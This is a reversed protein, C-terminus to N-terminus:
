EKPVDWNEGFEKEMKDMISEVHNFSFPVEWWDLPVYISYDGIDVQMFADCLDTKNHKHIKINPFMALLMKGNTAGEPIPIAKVPPLAELMDFADAAFLCVDKGDKTGLEKYFVERNCKDIDVLKM